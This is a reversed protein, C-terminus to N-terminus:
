PRPEETLTGHETEWRQQARGREIRHLRRMWAPRICNTYVSHIFGGVVLIGNLVTPILLWFFAETAMDM